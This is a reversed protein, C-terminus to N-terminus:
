KKLYILIAQLVSGSLTRAKESITYCYEKNGRPDIDGLKRKSPVNSGSILMGRIIGDISATIAEDGVNGIIDGKNVIDGINKDTVFIGHTESRVLRNITQGGINGPSGTNEEPKGKTIIRGLNHGRNTEIVIDINERASFGPGLGITLPADGKFTQISTLACMLGDVIIEFNYTKLLESDTIVPISNSLLAEEIEPKTRCYAGKVGEVTFIENHIIASAFSVKRRIVTPNERDFIFVKFGSLFLAHAVASGLEGGSKVLVPIRNLNIKFSM